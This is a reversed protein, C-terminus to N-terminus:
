GGGPGGEPRGHVPHPLPLPLFLHRIVHAPPPTRQNALGRARRGGRQRGGGWGRGGGPKGPADVVFSYVFVPYAAPGDRAGGYTGHAMGNMGSGGSGGPVPRQSVDAVGDQITTGVQRVGHFHLSSPEGLRNVFEIVLRDGVGAALTPAPHRGNIHIVPRVVGSLNLVFAHARLPTVATGRSPRAGMTGAGADRRGLRARGGDGKTAGDPAADAWAAVLRVKHTVPAVRAWAAACEPSGPSAALM